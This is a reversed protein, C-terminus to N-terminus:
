PCPTPTNEATFTGAITVDSNFTVRRGARVVVDSASSVTVGSDITVAEVAFFTSTGAPPDTTVVRDAPCDPLAQIVLHVTDSGSQGATDTATASITHYGAVLSSTSPSGGVGFSGGGINSSWDLSATRDGDEPDAATGGFIISDGVNFLANESPTTIAASPVGNKVVSFNLDSLDFFINDSCAVKVRAGSTLVNPPLV